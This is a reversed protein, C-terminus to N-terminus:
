SAKNKSHLFMIKKKQSRDELQYKHKLYHNSKFINCEGAHNVVKFWKTNLLLAGWYLFVWSVTVQGGGFCRAQGAGLKRSGTVM